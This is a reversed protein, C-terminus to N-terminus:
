KYSINVITQSATPATTGNDALETTARISIGASFEVGAPFQMPPLAGSPLPITFVPTDAESAATTKNYVKLYRVAANLNHADISYLTAASAKVVLGTALLNISRYASAGYKSSASISVKQNSESVAM